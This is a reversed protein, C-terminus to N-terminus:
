QCGRRLKEQLLEKLMSGVFEEGFGDMVELTRHQGNVAVKVDSRLYLFLAVVTSKALEMRKKGM